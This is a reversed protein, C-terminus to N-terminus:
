RTAGSKSSTRKRQEATTGTTQRSKSVSRKQAAGKSASRKSTSRRERRVVVRPETSRQVEEFIAEGEMRSQRM